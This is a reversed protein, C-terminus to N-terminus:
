ATYKGFTGQQMENEEEQMLQEMAKRWEMDIAGAQETNAEYMVSQSLSKVMETALQEPTTGQTEPLVFWAFVFTGALVIAFPVFSYPGLYENLYPFCLGVIFNCAWNVQSCTSMAVAVYKADFRLVGRNFTRQTLAFFPAFYCNM